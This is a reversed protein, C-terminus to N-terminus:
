TVSCGVAFTSHFGFQMKKAVVKDEEGPIVRTCLLVIEVDKPVFEKVFDNWFKMSEQDNKSADVIFLVAHTERSM